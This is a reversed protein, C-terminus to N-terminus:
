PDRRRVLTATGSTLTAQRGLQSTWWTIALSADSRRELEVAGSAGGNGAWAFRGDGAGGEFHFSVEPSVPRDAVRYRGRYRGQLRGGREAIVLEIYEPPYLDGAEAAPKPIYIWAGALGADAPAAPGEVDAGGTEEAATSALRAEPAPPAPPPAESARVQAIEAVARDREQQLREITRRFERAREILATDEGGSRTSADGAIAVQSAEAVAVPELSRRSAGGAPQVSEGLFWWLGAIGALSAFGWVANRRLADMTPLWAPGGYTEDRLARETRPAILSSDYERRKDPDALVAFISNIRKMQSEALARLVPDQVQDPHLLRALNKQAQRLEEVTATPSLGFEEYHNVPQVKRIVGPAKPSILRHNARNYFAPRRSCRLPM